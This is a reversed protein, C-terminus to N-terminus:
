DKLKIQFKGYNKGVSVINFSITEYSGDFSINKFEPAQTCIECSYDVTVPLDNFHHALTEDHMTSRLLYVGKKADLKGDLYIVHQKLNRRYFIRFDNFGFNTYIYNVLLKPQTLDVYWWEERYGGSDGRQSKIELVEGSVKYNYAIMGDPPYLYIDDQWLPLLRQTKIRELYGDVLYRQLDGDSKPNPKSRLVLQYQENVPCVFKANAYRKDRYDLDTTGVSCVDKSSQNVIYPVSTPAPIVAASQNSIQPSRGRAFCGSVAFLIVLLFTIMKVFQFM